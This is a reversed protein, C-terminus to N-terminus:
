QNQIQLTVDKLDKRKKEPDKRWVIDKHLLNALTTKSAKINEHSYFSFAVDLIGDGSFDTFASNLFCLLNDIIPEGANAM